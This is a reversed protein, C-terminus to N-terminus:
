EIKNRKSERIKQIEEWYNQNEESNNNALSKKRLKEVITDDVWGETICKDIVRNLLRTTIYYQTAFEKNYARTNAYKITLQIAEEKPLMYLKRKEKLSNYRKESRGAGEEGAKVSSNNKAKQAMLEVTADDVIGSVVAIALISYFKGKTIQYKQEFYEHTHGYETSAYETAIEWIEKRTFIRRTKKKM